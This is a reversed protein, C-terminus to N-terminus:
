QHGVKGQFLRRFADRTYRTAGDAKLIDSCQKLLSTRLRERVCEEEMSSMKLSSTPTPPLPKYMEDGTTNNKHREEMIDGKQPALGGAGAPETM